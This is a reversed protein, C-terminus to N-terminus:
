LPSRIMVANGLTTTINITTNTTHHHQHHHHHPHHAPITTISAHWALMRRSTCKEALNLQLLASPKSFFTVITPIGPELLPEVPDDRTNLRLLQEPALHPTHTSMIQVSRVVRYCVHLM